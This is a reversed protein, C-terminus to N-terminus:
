ECKRGYSPYCACEVVGLKKCGVGMSISDQFFIKKKKLRPQGPVTIKWIETERFVLIVPMAQSIYTM